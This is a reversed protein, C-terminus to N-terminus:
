YRRRLATIAKPDGLITIRDGVKLVTDGKPVVLMGRRRIMAVLLDRPFALEIISKGALEKTPGYPLVKLALMHEERLM